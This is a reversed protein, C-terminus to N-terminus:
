RAYSALERCADEIQERLLEDEEILQWARQDSRRAAEGMDVRVVEGADDLHRVQEVHASSILAEGGAPPTTWDGPDFPLLEFIIQAVYQRNEAEDDLTWLLQRSATAM